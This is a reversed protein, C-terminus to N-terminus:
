AAAGKMDRVLNTLVGGKVKLLEDPKGFEVLEGDSLVMVVDSDSVTGLRHAVILVTSSRCERRLCRQIAADTEIDINATAEDMVIVRTNKLLARALCLLQRQGVSINEGGKQITAALGGSFGQVLPTLEVRELVDYLQEDGYVGIPDLNDRISGSFLVPEQPIVTIAARLATLPVSSLDVGDILVEGDHPELLRLLALVLTSKGSGSRGVIGVKAGAPIECSIGRLVDKLEARYRVRLTRLSVAGHMPWNSPPETGSWRESAVGSYANVREFSTLSSEVLSVTRVLWNMSGTISLSYTVMFGSLAAGYPSGIMSAASVAACLVVLCGLFELRLGLWRNACLMSYYARANLNVRRYFKGLFHDTLGFTRVTEVGSLTEALQSLVPSRTVSELRQVERSTPRFLTLMRSYVALAPGVVLLTIPQIVVVMAVITLVEFLCHILEFLSRPLVADITEIDRSFRNLIRGVPNSEFFRLPARVVGALLEGHAGRGAELGRNLFLLSRFFSFISLGLVFGLYGVSFSFLTVDQAGSYLALWLDASLSSLQRFIFLPLILFVTLRPLLRKLYSWLLDRDVAGVQRDEVTLIKGDSEIPDDEVEIQTHTEDAPAGDVQGKRAEAGQTTRYIEFLQRFRTGSSLLKEPPGDETISGDEIVLVRDARLAFELRHTVLVRASERFDGLVLTDFVSQAVTTDLASLPDDLLILDAGQYVARALAVRQRQGGSLNVGREGIETMDGRPLGALDAQLCAGSVAKEYRVADFEKGCLINARISDSVIWPQQPVYSVSGHVHVTGARRSIEGLTGLLLASKGSGVSGVVAVLEGAQVSLNGVSLAPVGAKWEFQANTIELATRTTSRQGVTLPQADRGSLFTTVRELAVRSEIVRMMTEPLFSLAFRLAGLLALAPFVVAPNLSGGQAVLVSFTIVMAFGPASGAALSLLSSLLNLEKAQLLEKGRLGTTRQVLRDEWGYLKVTKINTLLENMLGVRRDSLAVLARRAAIQRRAVLLSFAFVAALVLAGYLGPVGVLVYLLYVSILIQLPHFWLQHLFIFLDQIKQTDGGILNITTGSSGALREERHLSLTKRYVAGSLATRVRLSLKVQSFFLHHVNIAGALACGFVSAALTISVGFRPSVGVLVFLPSLAHELTPLGDQLSQILLRLLFPNGLTAVLLIVSLAASLLVERQSLGMLARLLPIRSKQSRYEKFARTLQEASAQADISDPLELLSADTLPTKSNREIFPSVWLFLLRSFWSPARM